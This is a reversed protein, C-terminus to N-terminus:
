VSPNVRLVGELIREVYTDGDSDSFSIEVDYVYNIRKNLASTKENTLILNIVGDSPPVMIYPEFYVKDSDSVGHKRAISAVVNYGTLDKTSGDANFCYLDMSVDTGQEILFDEHRAM